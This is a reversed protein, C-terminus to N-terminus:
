AYIIRELEGKKGFIWYEIKYGQKSTEKLKEENKEEFKSYTYTSKVEIIKNKHPIYCDPYFKCKKGNYTYDITPVGQESRDDMVIQEEDYMQLLIDLAHNEYGQLHLVKGSPLVYDKKKWANNAKEYFEPVKSPNDVGYRDMCTQSAKARVEKNQMCNDVKYKRQMTLRQKEVFEPVHMPSTVGYKKMHVDKIKQIIKASKSPNDVGYIKMCTERTKKQIEKSKRPHDVGYKEICNKKRRAEACERCGEADKMLRQYSIKSVQGCKCQIKLKESANKYEKSLLIFGRKAFREKIMPYTLACHAGETCVKCWIKRTKYTQMTCIDLTKCSNCRYELKQSANKYTKTLLTLNKELLRHVVQIYTLRTPM